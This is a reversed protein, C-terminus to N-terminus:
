EDVGGASSEIFTEREQNTPFENVRTATPQNFNFDEKSFPTNTVAFKIKAEETLIDTTSLMDLVLQINEVDEPDQYGFKELYVSYLVGFLVSYFYRKFAMNNRDEDGNDGSGLGTIVEGAIVSRSVGTINSLIGYITSIANDLPTSDYSTFGVDTDSDVYAGNGNASALGENVQKLQIELAQQDAENNIMESLKNIKLLLTSSVKVGKSLLNMLSQMIKFLTVVNSSEYFKTFDLEIYDKGQKKGEGDFVETQEVHEFVFWGKDGSSPSVPLKKLFLKRRKVMAWCIRRLLGEKFPSYNDYLTLRVNERDVSEPTVIREVAESLIKHYMTYAMQDAFDSSFSVADVESVASFVSKFGTKFRDFFNTLM